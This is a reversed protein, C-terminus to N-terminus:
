RWLATGQALATHETVAGDIRDTAFTRAARLYDFAIEPDRLAAEDPPSGRLSRGLTGM